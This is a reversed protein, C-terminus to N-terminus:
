HHACSRRLRVLSRARCGCLPREAASSEIVRALDM